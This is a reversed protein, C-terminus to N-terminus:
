KSPRSPAAMARAYALSAIATDQMGTGTLDAITIATEDPRGPALGSAVDGLETFKRDAPILGAALAHQLEGATACQSHRDPVYLDARLLCDAALEGKGPQDSGMATVHQGEQLMAATILPTTAPTTTVIIDASEVAAQLDPEVSVSLKLEAGMDRAFLAAKELNRAWVKVATLPRELALARLQWRAQAGAGIISAQCADARALHRAAVAGAAATRVDTLYGNDLLVAQVQGTQAAFLIMLGSSTPLGLQPNNFFGSAAKIAFSELGPVYATKVDVEGHFDPIELSLIPPMIVGGRALTQFAHDIHDVVAADLHVTQRLETETLIKIALAM